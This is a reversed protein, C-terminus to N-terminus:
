AAAKHTRWFAALHLFNEREKQAEHQTVRAAQLMRDFWAADDNISAHWARQALAGLAEAIAAIQSDAGYYCQPRLYGADPQQPNIITYEWGDASPAVLCVYGQWAFLWPRCATAVDCFYDRKAEWAKQAATKNAHGEVRIGLREISHTKKM